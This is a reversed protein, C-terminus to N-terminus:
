PGIELLLSDYSVWPHTSGVRWPRLIEREFDLPLVTSAAVIQLPGQMDALDLVVWSGEGGVRESGAPQLSPVLGPAPSLQTVVGAGDVVFLYRAAVRDVETEFLLLGDRAMSTGSALRAGLVVRGDVERGSVVRLELEPSAPLQDGERAGKIGDSPDPARFFLVLAAALAIVVAGAAPLRWGARRRPAAAPTPLDAEVSQWLAARELGTLPVEVPEQLGEAAEVLRLLTDLDLGHELLAQQCAECPSALHEHLLRAQGPELTGDLVADITAADLHSM